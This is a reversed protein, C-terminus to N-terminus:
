NLLALSLQPFAILLITVFLMIVVYPFAGAFIQNLTISADSVTSRVVYVAIGLPPTLLGMEVAIVTVIGFWILDGGFAQVIPIVLPLIILMISISDLFMGLIIVLVIYLLM